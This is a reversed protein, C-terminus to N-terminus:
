AYKESITRLKVELEEEHKSIIQVKKELEDIFLKKEVIESTLDAITKGQDISKQTLADHKEEFKRHM